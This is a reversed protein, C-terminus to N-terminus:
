QLLEPLRYLLRRAAPWGAEVFADLCAVLQGRRDADNFLERHDALFKGIVEVFRDAGMSEFQYGQKRGATLLAHAVLDFVSGPNASTLFGLMEILHFIAAPTGVDGIRRFTACNDALFVRKLDDNALGKNEDTQGDRFAGSSFYFQDGTQTLLNACSGARRAEEDTQNEKQLSLYRELGRAAAEVVRAAFEQCRRRIAADNDNDVGYGLVLGGQTAHVAHGLEPEHNPLDDLWSKLMGQAAPREHSVWLLLILSGIAERLEVGPREDHTPIRSVVALVLAEVHSPDAHILRMLSSAFFSLVRRNQEQAAITGALQWMTERATEWLMVLSNAMALRVEPHPDRVLRELSPTFRLATAEDVRCLNIAAQGGDLRVGGSSAESAEHKAETDPAVQPLPHILLAVVLDRLDSLTAQDARLGLTEQSLRECGRAVTEEVNEIVRPDTGRRAAESASVALARLAGVGNAIDIPNRAEGSLGLQKQVDETQSLLSANPEADIDIGKDTLWFFRDPQGWGGTIEFPRRNAPRGDSPPLARLFEQAEANVLNDLGIASLLRALFLERARGPDSATPFDYRLVRKEFEERASREELPYRAAILDIADKSTDYFELFPRQTAFPWLIEGIGDARQSGVLFMRSWLIALRNCRIVENVIQRAEADPANLLYARFAKVFSVANDSHADDPNWAWIHSRDEVISADLEGVHVAEERVNEDLQHSTAIYGELAAVLARVAELAHSRLFDPFAEKLAYRAMEYDQRSNSSLPLIRSHSISTAVDDAVVHGFITRYIDVVFDPDFAGIPKVKRALWSMDEHAHRRLRVPDLLKQLLRRSALTDSAYTDAVFGIATAALQSPLEQELAVQLVARAARGLLVLQETTEVRGVLLFLLTRLSWVVQDANVSTAAAIHCWPTLQIPQRDDLRVALAGVIHSFARFATEQDPGPTTLLHVLENMEEAAAPLECASRAAVSRAIPDSAADGAFHVVARWFRARSDCEETWLGQLAFSLAPALMLGLGRERRLVEGTAAIDAPDILVRSASYDFLIHHRFAVKKDGVPVLVNDSLLKDFAAPNAQAVDLRPAQLIRDSVMKDVANKLCLEAAAGHKEVRWQWYLALLQVQSQIDGFADASLGDTILEALLQTNFPVLALDRVRRGGRDIATRIEPARNLFDTLEEETWPPVHIHRVGSFAPESFERAPPRGGFLSRFQEGLRLDFTRISAIVHWRGGPLNLVDAIIARFVLESRGGRTADLADIFLLAADSGPWNDLVDRLSHGLGLEGRM